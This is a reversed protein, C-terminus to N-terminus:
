RGPGRIFPEHPQGADRLSIPVGAEVEGAALRDAAVVADGRSLLEGVHEDVLVAAEADEPRRRRVRDARPMPLFRIRGREADPAEELAGREEREDEEAVPLRHVRVETEALVLGQAPARQLDTELRLVPDHDPLVVPRTDRPDVAVGALDQLDLRPRGLVPVGVRPSLLLKGARLQAIRLPLAREVRDLADDDLEVELVVAHTEGRLADHRLRFRPHEAPPAVRMEFLALAEAHGLLIGVVLEKRRLGVQMRLPFLGGFRLTLERLPDLVSLSVERRPAKLLGDRREPVRERDFLVEVHLREQEGRLGPQDVCAAPLFGLDRTRRRARLSRIRAGPRDGSRAVGNLLKELLAPRREVSSRDVVRELGEIPDQRDIGFVADRELRNGLDVLPDVALKHSPRRTFLERRRDSEEVFVVGAVPAAVQTRDIRGV